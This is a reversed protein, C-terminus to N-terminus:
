GVPDEGASPTNPSGNASYYDFNNTAKITGTAPTTPTTSVEYTFSDADVKTIAARVNYDTENAGSITIDQGTVYGHNTLSVTVTSGSRTVSSATQFPGYAVKQGDTYTTGSDWAAVQDVFGTDIDSMELPKFDKGRYMVLRDFAQM